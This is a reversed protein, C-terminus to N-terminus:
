TYSVVDTGKVKLNWIEIELKKIESRPCYKDTMMKKLTKWTTGYAADHGVTKVHFNWWTLANGLLTCTAFKIQCAVTCNCIHFVSEMKEFWQILGVVGETGKFNYPQCKLFDSYTCERTTHETRRKGSGSDHSDDINGSSRNAEYEALADAVGQTILEKIAADTMPTTTRKPPMITITTASATTVVKPKAAKIEILTQALTLENVTITTASATTVKATSVVKEVKVKQEDLVRTDFMLNDDNRGQAEDVLTVKM